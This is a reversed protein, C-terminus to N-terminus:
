TCLRGRIWLKEEDSQYWVMYFESRTVYICKSFTETQGSQRRHGPCGTAGDTGGHHTAMVGAQLTTM